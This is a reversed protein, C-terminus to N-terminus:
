VRNEKVPPNRSVFVQISGTVKLKGKGQWRLRLREVVSSEKTGKMGM